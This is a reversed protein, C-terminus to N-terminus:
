KQIRMQFQDWNKSGEGCPTKGTTIRLTETPMRLPGKVKLTKEKMGRILYACEKELSKLRHSTLTIRIQHIAVEPEEPIKSTGKFAMATIHSGSRSTQGCSCLSSDHAPAPPLPEAATAVM